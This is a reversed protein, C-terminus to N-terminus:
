TKYVYINKFSVEKASIFDPIGSSGDLQCAPLDNLTYSFDKFGMDPAYRLEEILLDFIRNLAPFVNTYREDTNDDQVALDCIFVRVTISYIYPDIWQQQNDSKEWVLWILPYKGIQNNDKINLAEILDSYLGFQFYPQLNNAPDYSPKVNDVVTKFIDKFNSM